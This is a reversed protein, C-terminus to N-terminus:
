SAATKIAVLGAPLTLSVAARSGYVMGLQRSLAVEKGGFTGSAYVAMDMESKLGLGVCKLSGFVGFKTSVATASNAPLHRCTYVPFGLIEGAPKPGGNKFNASLLAGAQPLLYNGASDQQVRLKAWVTRSFYFAAGDLVSEEVSAIADSSDDIVDYEAFTDKGTALTLTGVNADTLVGTFPAGTGIFVQKDLANAWAEGALALLFDAVQPTAESLLDKGVVFALQWSKALLKAAKFTVGTVSGVADFGLWEGELISGAYAPVDLEDGKMDWRACQSMAIGVSAAIRLIANAVEPAILYGGRSDQDGVMAENAKTQAPISKVFKVFETKQGESLGTRDHGLVAREVRMDEVIERVISSREEGIVSKLRSELATDLHSKIEASMEKKFLELDLM